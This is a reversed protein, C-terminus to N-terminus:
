TNDALVDLIPTPLVLRDDIRQIRRIRDDESRWRVHSAIRRLELGKDVSTTANPILLTSFVLDTSTECM